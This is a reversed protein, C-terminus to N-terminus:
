GARHPARTATSDAAARSPRNRLLLAAYPAACPTTCRRPACRGYDEVGHALWQERLACRRARKREEAARRLEEQRAATAAAVATAERGGDPVYMPLSSEVVLEQYTQELVSLERRTELENLHHRPSSTHDAHEHSSSTEAHSENLTSATVPALRPTPKSRQWQAEHGAKSELLQSLLQVRPTAPKATDTM